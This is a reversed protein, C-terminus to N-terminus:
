LIMPSIMMKLAGFSILIDVNFTISVINIVAMDQQYVIYLVTSISDLEPVLVEILSLELNQSFFKDFNDVPM